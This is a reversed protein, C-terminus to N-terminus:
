VGYLSEWSFWDWADGTRGSGGELERGRFSFFEAMVEYSGGGNWFLDWLLVLHFGIGFWFLGGPLLRGSCFVIVVGRFCYAFSCITYVLWVWFDSRKEFGWPSFIEELGSPRFIAAGGLVSPFNKQQDLPNYASPLEVIYLTIKKIKQIILIPMALTLGKSLTTHMSSAQLTVDKHYNRQHFGEVMGLYNSTEEITLYIESGIRQFCRKMESLWGLMVQTCQNWNYNNQPNIRM